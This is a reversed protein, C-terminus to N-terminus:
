LASQLKIEVELLVEKLVVIRVLLDKEDKPYQDILIEEKDRSREIKRYMQKVYKQFEDIKSISQQEATREANVMKEIGFKIIMNRTKATKEMDGQYTTVFGEIVGESNSQAEGFKKFGRLKLYDDKCRELITKFLDQTVEIKADRLIKQKQEIEDNSEPGNENENSQQMEDKNEEEAHQREKEDIIKYDLYKLNKLWAIITKRFDKDKDQKYFDNEEIKLVQLRSKLNIKLYKLTKDLDGIKNRGVSLVNLKTLSELGDIEKICNSFLSLDELEKLNDLGEIREILNFSLDLWKLNVLEDLGQIKIIINNDLQLKTLKEMGTLNCIEVIDAM